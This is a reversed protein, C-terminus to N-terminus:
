YRAVIVPVSQDPTGIKVEAWIANFIDELSCDVSTGEPAGHRAREIGFNL